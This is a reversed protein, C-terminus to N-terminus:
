LLNILKSFNTKIESVEHDELQETLMDERGDRYHIIKLLTEKGKATMKIDIARRDLKNTTRNLFGKNVMKDIIRSVRSLSLQMNEAVSYSNFHKCNRLCIFMSYEAQTIKLSKFFVEDNLSCKKKLDYILDLIKSDEM